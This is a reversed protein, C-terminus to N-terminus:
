KGSESMRVEVRELGAEGERIHPPLEGIAARGVSGDGFVATIRDGHWGLCAPGEPPPRLFATGRVIIENGEMALDLLTGEELQILIGEGHTLVRATKASVPLRSTEKLKGTDFITITDGGVESGELRLIIKGGAAGIVSRDGKVLEGVRSRGTFRNESVPYVEVYDGSFVVLGSESLLISDKVDNGLKIYNGREKEGFPTFFCFANETVAFFGSEALFVRRVKRPFERSRLVSGETGSIDLLYVRSKRKFNVACVAKTGDIEADAISASGGPFTVVSSLMGGQRGVEGLGSEGCADGIDGYVLSRRGGEEVIAFLSVREGSSDERGSDVIGAAKRPFVAEVVSAEGGVAMDKGSGSIKGRFLSCVSRPKWDSEAARTELVAEEDWGEKLRREVIDKGQKGKGKEIMKTEYPTLRIDVPFFLYGSIEEGPDIRLPEFLGCAMAPILSHRAVPEYERMARYGKWAYYAGLPPLLTGPLIDRRSPRRYLSPSEKGRILSVVELPHLPDAEVGGMHLTFGRFRDGAAFSNISFIRLPVTDNNRVAVLVPFVGYDPLFAGFLEEIEEMSSLCLARVAIGGGEVPQGDPIDIGTPVLKRCSPVSSLVAMVLLIAASRTAMNKM